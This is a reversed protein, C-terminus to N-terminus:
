DSENDSGYAVLPGDLKPEKAATFREGSQSNNLAALISTFLIGGSAKEEAQEPVQRDEVAPTSDLALSLGSNEGTAKISGHAATKNAYWIDDPAEYDQLGFSGEIKRRKTVDPDSGEIEAVFEPPLAAHIADAAQEEIRRTERISTTDHRYTDINFSKKLTEGDIQVRAPRPKKKVLKVIKAKPSVQIDEM